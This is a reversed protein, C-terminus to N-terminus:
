KSFEDDMTEEFDEFEEEDARDVVEASWSLVEFDGVFIRRAEGLVSDVHAGDHGVFSFGVTSQKPSDSDAELVSLGLNRLKQVLGQVVKRKDKHSRAHRMFLM